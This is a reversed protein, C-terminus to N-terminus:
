SNTERPTSRVVGALVQGFQRLRGINASARVGAMATYVSTHAISGFLDSAHRSGSAEAAGSLWGHIPAAAGAMWGSALTLGDIPVHVIAYGGSLEIPPAPQASSARPAFSLLAVLVLVRSVRAIM